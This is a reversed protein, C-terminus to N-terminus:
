VHRRRPKKMREIFEAVDKPDYLRRRDIEVRPIEGRNALEWLKRESIGLLFAAQKANLLGKM